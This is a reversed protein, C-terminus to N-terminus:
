IRNSRPDIALGFPTLGVRIPTLETNTRNDIVAVSRSDCSIEFVPTVYTKSTVPNVALAFATEGAALGITAIFTPGENAAIRSPVVAALVLSVILLLARNMSKTIKM